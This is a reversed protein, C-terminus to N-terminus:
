PFATEHFVSRTGGSRAARARGPGGAAAGGGCGAGASCATAAVQAQSAPTCDESESPPRTAASSRQHGSPGHTWESKRAGVWSLCVSLGPRLSCVLCGPGELRFSGLLKTSSGDGQNRWTRWWELLRQAMSRLPVTHTYAFSGHVRVASAATQRHERSVQTVHIFRM